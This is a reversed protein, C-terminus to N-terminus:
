GYGGRSFIRRWETCLFQLPTIVRRCGRKESESFWWVNTVYTLTSPDFERRM